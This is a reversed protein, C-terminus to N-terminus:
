YDVVIYQTTNWPSNQISVFLISTILVLVHLVSLSVYSQNLVPDANGNKTKKRVFKTPYKEIANTETFIKM